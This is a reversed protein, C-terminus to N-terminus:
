SIDELTLKFEGQEDLREKELSEFEERPIIGAAMKIAREAAQEDGLAEAQRAFGYLHSAIAKLIWDPAGAEKLENIQQRVGSFYDEASHLHRGLDLTRLGIQIFKSQNEKERFPRVTIEGTQRDNTEQWFRGQYHFYRLRRTITSFSDVEVIEAGKRLGDPLYVGRDVEVDYEVARGEQISTTLRVPDVLDMYAQRGCGFSHFLMVEPVRDALRLEDFYHGALLEQTKDTRQQPSIRHRTSAVEEYSLQRGGLERISELASEAGRTKVQIALSDITGEDVEPLQYLSGSVLVCIPLNYDRSAQVVEETEPLDPRIQGGIDDVCYYLYATEPNEVALENYGRRQGVGTREARMVQDIQFDDMGRPITRRKLGKAQTGGDRSSAAVVEGGSLVIGARSCFRNESAEDGVFVTSTSLTPQLVLAIDLKTRWGVRKRLLSNEGPQFSARIGHLVLAKYQRAIEGVEVRPRVVEPDPSVDVDGTEDVM